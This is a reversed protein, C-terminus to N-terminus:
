QPLECGTKEALEELPVSGSIRSEDAFVWTPYGTIDKDRCIQKQSKGDPTSCEVYPLYKASSGFMKKQNQCHPCWYTGYFVAGQEDLCKAFEDYKGPAANGAGGGQVFFWVVLGLLIAGGVLIAITQNSFKM